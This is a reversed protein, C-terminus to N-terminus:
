FAHQMYACMPSCTIWRAGWDFMIVGETTTGKAATLSEHLCAVGPGEKHQDEELFMHSWRANLIFSPLPELQECSSIIFPIDDVVSSAILFMCRSVSSHLPLLPKLSVQLQVYKTCDKLVSHICGLDPVHM